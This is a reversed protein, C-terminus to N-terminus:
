GHVRASIAAMAEDAPISRRWKGTAAQLHDDRSRLDEGVDIAFGDGGGEAHGDVIGETQAFTPKDACSHSRNVICQMSSCNIRSVMSGSVSCGISPSPSSTNVFMTLLTMGMIRYRVPSM